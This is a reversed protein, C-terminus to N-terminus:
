MIQRSTFNIYIFNQDEWFTYNGKKIVSPKALGFITRMDFDTAVKFYFDSFQRKYLSISVTSKLVQIMYNGSKFQIIQGITQCPNWKNIRVMEVGAKKLECIGHGACKKLPSGFSIECIISKQIAEYAVLHLLKNEEKYFNLLSKM